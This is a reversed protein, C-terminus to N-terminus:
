NFYRSSKLVSEYWFTKRLFFWYFNSFYATPNNWPKEDFGAYHIIKPAEFASRIKAAWETPMDQCFDEFGAMLNWSVDLIKMHGLLCRNLVDQDLLWYRRSSLDKASIEEIKHARFLDLNFLMVGAQFYQDAQSGLALYERVYTDVVSNNLFRYKKPIKKNKGRALWEKICIDPAAAAIYPANLETDFLESIDTLVTVDTDLYLIKQHNPLLRGVSIRYFTATSFHAHTKVDAYLGSCDIFSITGASFGQFFQKELLNKSTEHVGGDLVIFDLFRNKSFSAKISEILAGLHPTYNEDVAVVVTVANSPPPPPPAPQATKLIQM